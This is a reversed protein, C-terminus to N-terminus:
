GSLIVGRFPESVATSTVCDNYLKEESLIISYACSSTSLCINSSHHPQFTLNLCTDFSAPSPCIHLSSLDSLCTGTPSSSLSEMNSAELRVNFPSCLDILCIFNAFFLSLSTFPLIVLSWVEESLENDHFKPM